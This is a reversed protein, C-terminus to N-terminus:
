RRGAGVHRQGRRRVGRDAQWRPKHREPGRRRLGEAARGACYRRAPCASVGARETPSLQAQIVANPDRGEDPQVNRPARTLSAEFGTAIGYGHQRRFEEETLDTPLGTTSVIQGATVYVVYRFGQKRMCEAILEQRTRDTERVQRALDTKSGGIGLLDSLTTARVAASAETTSPEGPRGRDQSDGRQCSALLLVLAALAPVRFHRGRRNRCHSRRSILLGHEVRLQVARQERRHM